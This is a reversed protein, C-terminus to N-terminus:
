GFGVVLLDREQLVFLHREGTLYGVYDDEVPARVALAQQRVDVDAALVLARVTAADVDAVESRARENDAM